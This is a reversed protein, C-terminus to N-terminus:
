AAAPRSGLAGYVWASLMGALPFLATMPDTIWGSMLQSLSLSAPAAMLGGTMWQDWAVPLFWVCGCAAGLACIWIWTLTGRRSLVLLAPLLIVSTTLYSAFAGLAMVVLVDDLPHERGGAIAMAAGILAPGILPALLFGMWTFRM